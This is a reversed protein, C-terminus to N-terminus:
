NVLACRDRSMCPFLASGAEEENLCMEYVRKDSVMRASERGHLVPSVQDQFLLRQQRYADWVVTCMSNKQRSDYAMSMSHLTKM